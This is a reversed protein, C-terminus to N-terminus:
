FIQCGPRHFARPTKAQAGTLFFFPLSAMRRPMGALAEAEDFSQTSLRFVRGPLIPGILRPAFCVPSRLAPFSCAANSSAPAPFTAHDLDPTQPRPSLINYLVLGCDEALDRKTIPFSTKVRCELFINM